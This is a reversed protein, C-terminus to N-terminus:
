QRGCKCRPKVDSKSKLIFPINPSGSSNGFNNATGRSGLGNLDKELTNLTLRLTRSSSSVGGQTAYQVNNPSYTLKNCGIGNLCPCNGQYTVGEDRTYNYSNQQITNCRAQRYQQATQYYDKKLITSAGRVRKLANTAQCCLGELSNREDRSLDCAYVANSTSSTVHGPREMTLSLLPTSRSSKVYRNMNTTHYAYGNTAPDMAVANIMGLRYNWKMPRPLGHRYAVDNTVDNNTFPRLNTSTVLIPESLTSPM